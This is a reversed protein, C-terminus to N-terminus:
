PKLGNLEFVVERIKELTRTKQLETMGQKIDELQIPGREPEPQPKVRNDPLERKLIPMQAGGPYKRIDALWRRGFADTHEQDIITVSGDANTITTM